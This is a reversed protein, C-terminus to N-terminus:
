QIVLCLAAAQGSHSTLNSSQNDRSLISHLICNNLFVSLQMHKAINCSVAKVHSM